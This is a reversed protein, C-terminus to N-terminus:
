EKYSDHCAKCSKGTKGFAKGMATKDGSGATERLIRTASRLDELKQSFDEFDFWIDPRAGTEGQDSDPPFGPLLDLSAAKALDEAHRAFAAADFFKKGKLMDGMSKMNWNFVNMVGQRYDLARELEGAAAQGMGAGFLFLACLAGIMSVCKGNM